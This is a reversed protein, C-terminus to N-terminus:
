NTLTIIKSALKIEGILCNLLDRKEQDDGEKLLFKAYNKIDVDSVDINDNKDTVM